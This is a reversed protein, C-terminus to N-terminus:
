RGEGLALFDQIVWGDPQLLLNVYFEAPKSGPYTELVEGASDVLQSPRAQAVVRVLFGNGEVGALVTEQIEQGGGAIRQGEMELKKIANYNEECLACQPLYFRRLPEPAAEALAVDLAHFWDRAFQEASESQVPDASPTVMSSAAPEATAPTEVPSLTSPGTGSNSCASVSIVLAAVVAALLQRRALMRPITASLDRV